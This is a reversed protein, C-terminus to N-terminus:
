KRLHQVSLNRMRRGAVRVVIERFPERTPQQHRMVAGFGVRQWEGLFEERDHEGHATGADGDRRAGQLSYAGDIVLAATDEDSVPRAQLFGGALAIAEDPLM